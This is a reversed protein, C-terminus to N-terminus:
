LYQLVQNETTAIIDTKGKPNHLMAEILTYPHETRSTDFYIYDCLVYLFVNEVYYVSKIMSVNLASM